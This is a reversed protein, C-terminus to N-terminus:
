KKTLLEISPPGRLFSSCSQGNPTQMPPNDQQGIRGPGSNFTQIVRGGPTFMQSPHLVPQKAHSLLQETPWNQQPICPGGTSDRQTPSAPFIFLQPAHLLLHGTPSSHQEPFHTL